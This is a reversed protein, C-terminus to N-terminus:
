IVGINKLIKVCDKMGQQYLYNSEREQMLGTEFLVEEVFAKDTKTLNTDLMEDIQEYRKKIYEYVEANQREKSASNISSDIFDRWVEKKM